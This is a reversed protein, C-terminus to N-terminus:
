WKDSIVTKCSIACFAPNELSKPHKRLSKVFPQFLFSYIQAKFISIQTQPKTQYMEYKFVVKAGLAKQEM